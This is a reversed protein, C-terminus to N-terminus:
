PMRMLHRLNDGFIRRAHDTQLGVARLAVCQREYVQSVWGRPFFSSDTGFLLRHPGAVELAQEFIQELSPPPALFSAWSNSSSTDLFVNPCMSALMLAERFYGAGFHPVVFSIGPHRLAAPHLDIPNSFRTNFRSPLGLKARIGVALAGCHVWAVARFGGAVQLIEDVRADSLPYAHMAPLLCVGRLGREFWTRCRAPADPATPDAFFWGFFRRPCAELAAAVSAEDGPLSALLVAQAVRRADLEQVWRQALLVPDEPPAQVGARACASAAGDLRAQAALMGFFHHSFFHIHADALELPGWPSGALPPTM